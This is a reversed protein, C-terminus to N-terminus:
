KKQGKQEDTQSFGYPQLIGEMKAQLDHLEDQLQSNWQGSDLLKQIEQVRAAIKGLELLDNFAKVGEQLKRQSAQAFFKDRAIKNRDKKKKKM